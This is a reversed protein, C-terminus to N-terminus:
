NHRVPETARRRPIETGQCPGSGVDQVAPCIRLGQGVLFDWVANKAICTLNYADSYIFTKAGKETIKECSNGTNGKLM